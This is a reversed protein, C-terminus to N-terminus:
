TLKSPPSCKKANAKRLLGYKELAGVQQSAEELALQAMLLYKRAEQAVPKHELAKELKRLQAEIGVIEHSLKM